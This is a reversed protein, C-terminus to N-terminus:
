VLIWICGQADTERRKKPSGASCVKESTEPVFRGTPLWITGMSAKGYALAELVRYGAVCRVQEEEFGAALRYGDSSEMRRVTDLYGGKKLHQRLQSMM